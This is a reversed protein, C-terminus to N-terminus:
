AIFACLVLRVGKVAADKMQFAFFEEPEHCVRADCSLSDFAFLLKGVVFKGASEHVEANANM